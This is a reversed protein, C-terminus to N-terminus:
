RHAGSRHSGLGRRSTQLRAGCAAYSSSRPRDSLTARKTTGDLGSPHHGAQSAGHVISAGGSLSLDRQSKAPRYNLASYPEAKAQRNGPFRLPAPSWLEEVFSAARPSGPDFPLRSAYVLGNPARATRSLVVAVSQTSRGRRLHVSRAPVLGPDDLRCSVVSQVHLDPNSDKDRLRERALLEAPWLAQKVRLFDSTRNWGRGNRIM